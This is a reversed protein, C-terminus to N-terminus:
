ALHRWSIGRKIDSILPPTVGYDKAISKQTEGSDLRIRIQIVDSETLKSRHHNSGKPSVRLGTNYAHIINHSYSCWELNTLENNIKIGDIHNVEPHNNSNDLFTLAVLRHINIQEVKGNKSLSVSNYGTNCKVPKLIKEKRNHRLDTRALSKVRGYDSVEYIGEYGIIEKWNENM